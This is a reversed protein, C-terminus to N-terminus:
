RRVEGAEDSGAAAAAAAGLHAEHVSKRLVDPELVVVDPGYGAIWSAAFDPYSLDLELVDGEIGDLRMSDVVSAQRRLGQARGPVVWLRM